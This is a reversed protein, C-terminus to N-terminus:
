VEHRSARNLLIAVVNQMGEAHKSDSPNKKSLPVIIHEKLLPLTVTIDCFGMDSLTELERKYINETGIIASDLILQEVQRDVDVTRGEVLPSLSSPKDNAFVWVSEDEEDIIRIDVWFRQGFFTGTPGTRLRFYGVYRGTAVPATLEVTIDTEQNPRIPSVPQADQFGLLDGGASAIVSTAPWSVEGDNRIKWSKKIVSGPAVSTGDPITVDRVFRACPKSQNFSDGTPIKMEADEELSLRVAEVILAHETDMDDDKKKPQPSNAESDVNESSHGAASSDASDWLGCKNAWRRMRRMQPPVFPFRGFPPPHMRGPHHHPHMRGPHHHPGNHPGNHPPRWQHPGRPFARSDDVTVFIERPALLPDTIKLMPNQQPNKKECDECLDFDDRISCKYRTGIIPEIGCGDCTVGAHVAATDTAPIPNAFPLSDNSQGTVVVEFRFCVTSSKETFMSKQVNISEQFEEESKVVIKDNDDDFYCLHISSEKLVPYLEKIKNCVNQFSHLATFRRIENLYAVKLSLTEQSM